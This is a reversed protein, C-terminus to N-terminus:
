AAEGFRDAQTLVWKVLDTAESLPADLLSRGQRMKSYELEVGSCRLLRNAEDFWDIVMNTMRQVGVAIRQIDAPGVGDGGLAQISADLDYGLQRCVNAPLTKLWGPADDPIDMESRRNKPLRQAARIEHVFRLNAELRDKLQVLRYRGMRLPVTSRQNQGDIYAQRCENQHITM